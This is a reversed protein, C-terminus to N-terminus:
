QVGGMTEPFIFHAGTTILYQGSPCYQCSLVLDGDATYSGVPLPRDAHQTVTIAYNKPDFLDKATM